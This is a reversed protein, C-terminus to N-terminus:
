KLTFPVYNAPVLANLDSDQVHYHKRLKEVYLATEKDAADSLLKDKLKSEIEKFPIAGGPEQQSLYFLRYVVGKESRSKQAVPESYVKPQLKLISDKYAESMESEQHRFLESVSVKTDNQLINYEKLKDSLNDLTAQDNVLMAYAQEAVHKNVAEDAGRVSIVRYDWTPKRINKPDKSYEEYAQRVLAPTVLRIAKSNARFMLMRRITIEDQVMKYAEDFSLGVKDLNVIINPGFYMEMEQRIDGSSVEIKSEAADALVLEKDIFEQLIHKWNIEYFKFRAEVSSVYQPFQRYFLMDMKKMIDVTSIAKGNVKALIKNNVAIKAPTEQGLLASENKAELAMSIFFLCCLLTLINKMYSINHLTETHNYSVKRNKPLDKSFLM